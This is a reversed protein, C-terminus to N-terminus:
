AEQEKQYEAVAIIHTGDIPIDYIESDVFDWGMKDMQLKHKELEDTTKYHYIHNIYTPKM